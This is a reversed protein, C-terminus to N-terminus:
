FLIIELGGFTGGGAIHVGQDSVADVSSMDLNFTLNITEVVVEARVLSFTWVGGGVDIKLSMADSDISAVDYTITSPVDGLTFGAQLEGGNYSKALGIFAGVGSLTLKMDTESYSWIALMRVM